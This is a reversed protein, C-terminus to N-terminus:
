SAFYIVITRRFRTLRWLDNHKPLIYFLWRCHKQGDASYIYRVEKNDDFIRSPLNLENYEIHINSYPDYTLNGSADYTYGEYVQDNCSFSILQNGRYIYALDHLRNGTSDTRKM